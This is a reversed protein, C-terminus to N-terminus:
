YRNGVGTIVGCLFETVMLLSEGNEREGVTIAELRSETKIFKMYTSDYLIQRKTEPKKLMMDELNVWKTSM